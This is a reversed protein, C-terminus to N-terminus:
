PRLPGECRYDSTGARGSSWLTVEGFSCNMDALNNVGRLSRDLLFYDVTEAMDAFVRDASGADTLNATIRGTCVFRPRDTSGGAACEPTTYTTAAFSSRVDAVTAAGLEGLPTHRTAPVFLDDVHAIQEDLFADYARQLATDRGLRDRWADFAAPDDARLHRYMEKLQAPHELWLFSFFTGAYSYFRFGDGDYTAHLLQDVSMRPGGNATDRIIGRVLSARVKVGDDRTAGAFFEATGEDMATTRDGQYWSGEGFLGPVAWRGNLYHTYEHRFLEELTLSSDQPVRRQYTYFTAGREIYIGGNETGMGTLLPHFNEYDARSAYLVINLTTNTDGRLPELTGLVRHFQAKVQKSAYYLQDVTARDLGTRVRMADGRVDTGYAFTYPFLRREIDARCVRYPTCADFEILWSAVKAWPASRDGFTRATTDLLAGLGTVTESRLRDIQGFRGYEGLADRVVWANPRDKLHTYTAFTRFAARYSPDAVVADHFATDRNGPYVGLYNLSLAALAAGAWSTDQATVRDPGMTALVRKVLPLQYQRLGPASAAYLAERLTEANTRTADFTRPAVGFADVAQRMAAVTPADTVDIEPRSFDHYAVAHLYTFLELLHRSDTGDHGPALTAARRSVAQVHADSMVPALRGDWTWILTRLCGDATVAPDTLFDAFREPTLGTVGDLTCTALARATSGRLATTAGRVRGDARAGGPATPRLASIRPAETLHEVHDRDGYPAPASPSNAATAAHGSPLGTLGVALATSVTLLSIRRWRGLPRSTHRTRTLFM